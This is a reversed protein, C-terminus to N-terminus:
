FVKIKSIKDATVPIECTRNGNKEIFKILLVGRETTAFLPIAFGLVEKSYAKVIDPIESAEPYLREANEIEKKKAKRKMKDDYRFVVGDIIYDFASNNSVTIKFYSFESDNRMASVHFEVRSQVRGISLYENESAMVEHMRKDAINKTIELEKKKEESEEQKKESFNYVSKAPADNYSVTGTYVKGSNLIITITREGAAKERAKLVVTNRNVKVDFYQFIALGGANPVPPNNSIILDGKPLLDDPFILTAHMNTGAEIKGMDIQGSVSASISIIAILINIKKKM